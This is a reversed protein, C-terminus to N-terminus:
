KNAAVWADLQTQKEAIIKDIGAAKLKDVFEPIYVAPDITGYELATRYQSLVNSVASYENSIPSSDFAFGLSRTRVGNTLTNIMDEKLTPSSSAWPTMMLNSGIQFSMATSYQTNSGNIGEPYVLKGDDNVLYDTGEIGDYILNVVEPDTYTLTLFKIAAEPADSTVPICALFRLMCVVPSTLHKCVLDMNYNNSADISAYEESLNNTYWFSFYRGTKFTTTATDTTTAIDKQTYGKTYWDYFTSCMDYYDQSAFLNTLTWDDESQLVGIADSVGDYYGSAGSFCFPLGAFTAADKTLPVVDPENEYITQYIPTLDKYSHITSVDINYKDILDKRMAVFLSNSKNDINPVGYLSGNVRAGDLLYEFGKYSDLIDQGYQELLSDMEMFMGSNVFGPYQGDKVCVIDLKEGSSIMLNMVEEYNATSVFTVDLKVNIKKILIENLAEVVKECDAGQQGYLRWLVAVTEPQETALASTTSFILCVTITVAMLLSLVKKM